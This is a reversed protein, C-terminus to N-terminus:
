WRKSRRASALSTSILSRATAMEIFDIQGSEDFQEANAPLRIGRWAKESVARPSLERMERPRYSSGALEAARDRM